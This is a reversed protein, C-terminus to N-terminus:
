RARIVRSQNANANNHLGHNKLLRTTLTPTTVRGIREFLDSM